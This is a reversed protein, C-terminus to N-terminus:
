SFGRAQLFAKDVATSFDANRGKNWNTAGVTTNSTSNGAYLAVNSTNGMLDLLYAVLFSQWEGHLENHAADISGEALTGYPVPAHNLFSFEDALSTTSKILTNATAGILVINLQKVRPNYANILRDIDARRKVGWPFVAKSGALVIDDQWVFGSDSPFFYNGCWGQRAYKDMATTVRTLAQGGSASVKLTPYISLSTAPSASDATVCYVQSDGAITFRNGKFWRGIGGTVNISSVGTSFAGNGTYKHPGVFRVIAGSSISRVLPPDISVTTAPTASDSQVTYDTPDGDFRILDNTKFQLSGGTVPISTAGPSQSGNVTYGSAPDDVLSRCFTSLMTQAINVLVFDCRSDFDGAFRDEGRRSFRGRRLLDGPLGLQTQLVDWGGSSGGWHRSKSPLTSISKGSGWLAADTAHTRFWSIADHDDFINEPFYAAESDIANPEYFGGPPTDYSVLACSLENVLMQATSNSPLDLDNPQSRGGGHKWYVVKWPPAQYGAVPGGGTPNDPTWIRFGSNRKSRSWRGVATANSSDFNTFDAM